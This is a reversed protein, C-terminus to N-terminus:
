APNNSIKNFNLERESATAVDGLLPLCIDAAAENSDLYRMGVGGQSREFVTIVVMTAYRSSAALIAAM